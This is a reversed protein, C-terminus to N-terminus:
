LGASNLRKFRDIIEGVWLNIYDLKTTIVSNMCRTKLKRIEFGPHSQMECLVLVKLFPIFGVIRGGAILLYKPKTEKNLPM